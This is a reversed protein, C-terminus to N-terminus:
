DLFGARRLFASFRPDNRLIDFEPAINLRVLFNSQQFFSREIWGLAEEKMGLRAYITAFSYPDFQQGRVGKEKQALEELHRVRTLAEERRGAKAAIRALRWELESPQADPRSALRLAAATAKDIKGAQLTAEFLGFDGDSSTSDRQGMREFHIEAESYRRAYIYVNRLLVPQTDM